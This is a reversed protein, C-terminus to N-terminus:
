RVGQKRRPQPIKLPVLVAGLAEADAPAQGTLHRLDHLRIKPYGVAACARYWHWRLSWETVPVPV